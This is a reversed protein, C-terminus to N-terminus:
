DDCTPYVINGNADYCKYKGASPRYRSQHPCTTNFRGDLHQRMTMPPLEHGCKKCIIGRVITTEINLKAFTSNAAM